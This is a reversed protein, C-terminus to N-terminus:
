RAYGSGLQAPKRLGSVAAKAGALLLPVALLVTFGLAPLLLLMAWPWSGWSQPTAASAASHFTLPSAAAWGGLGLYGLGVAVAPLPSTRASRLVAVYLLGALRFALLSVLGFGLRRGIDDVSAVARSLAVVGVSVNLVSAVALVITVPVHWGTRLRRHADTFGRALLPPALLLAYGWAPAQAARGVGFADAPFHASFSEPAVISWLSIGLFTAGVLRPGVPAIRALLLVGVLLAAGVLAALGVLGDRPGSGAAPPDGQFMAFPVAGYAYRLKGVGFGVALWVAVGLPVSILISRVQRM